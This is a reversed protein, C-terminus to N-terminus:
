VTVSIEGPNTTMTVVVTGPGTDALARQYGHDTPYPGGPNPISSVSVDQSGSAGTDLNRWTLTAHASCAPDQRDARFMVAAAVGNANNPLPAVAVETRVTGGCGPSVEVRADQFDAATQAGAPAAFPLLASVAFTGLAFPRLLM